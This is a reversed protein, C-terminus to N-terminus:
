QVTVPEQVSPAARRNGADALAAQDAMEQDGIVWGADWMQADVSGAECSNSERARGALRARRGLEKADQKEEASQRELRAAGSGNAPPPTAAKARAPKRAPTEDHEKAARPAIRRAAAQGLPTDSLGGLSKMYAEFLAREGQLAERDGKRARLVQRLVKTNFGDDKAETFIETMDDALAQKAAAKIELREVFGKLHDDDFEFVTDDSEESV